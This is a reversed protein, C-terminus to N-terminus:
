SQAEKRDERIRSIGEELSNGEPLKGKPTLTDIIQPLLSALGSSVHEKPLGTKQAIDQIQESGLAHEMQDGSVHQNEGTGIWSSVAGGLGKAKFNEILGSLGGTNPNNILGLVVDLLPNKGSLRGLAEKGVSDLLGM